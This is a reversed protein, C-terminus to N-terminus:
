EETVVNVNWKKEDTVSVWLVQLHIMGRSTKIKADNKTMLSHLDSKDNGTVQCDHFHQIPTLLKNCRSISEDLLRDLRTLM